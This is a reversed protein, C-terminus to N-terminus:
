AAKQKALAPGFGASPIRVCTWDPDDAAPEDLKVGDVLLVGRFYAAVLACEYAAGSLVINDNADIMVTDDLQAGTHTMVFTVLKRRSENLKARADLRALDNTTSNSTTM